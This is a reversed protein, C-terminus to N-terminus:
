IKNRHSGQRNSFFSLIHVEDAFVRYYMTNFKLIPVRYIDKFESKAFLSPNKSILEAVNEVRKALRKIEKDSFNNKLYEITETLEELANATWVVKYGNKMFSELKQM